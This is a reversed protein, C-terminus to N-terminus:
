SASPPRRTASEGRCSPEYRWAEGGPPAPPQWEGEGALRGEVWCQLRLLAELDADLDRLEERMGALDLPRLLGRAQLRAVDEAALAARAERDIAAQRLRARAREARAAVAAAEGALADAFVALDVARM